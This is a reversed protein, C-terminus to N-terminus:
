DLYKLFEEPIRAKEIDPLLKIVSWALDLSENFTRREKQDLFDKEFSFGFALYKKDTESLSEEGSILVLKKTRLYKSYSSYLVDGVVKHDKRAIGKSGSHMLRSLSPVINIPPRIGEKELDRSLIIQGETIYGTLDPVPHTMDDNPMTLVPFQTLSGKRGSIIGSREMISALDTYLYPPYSMRGPLEGRSSSIERLAEAYNTLDYLILLVDMEMDFALYESLTLAIRPLIIREVIPDDAKNLFVISRNLIGTERITNLIYSYEDFPLGLGCFVIKLDGGLLKADKLVRILLDLHSLGSASFVPLKQGQILTMLLDIASIGTEIIGHPPTRASPLIIRGSIDREEGVLPPGGDIPNGVGDFIRGIAQESVVTKLLAGKFNIRIDETGVLELKQFTQIVAYEDSTELVQGEIIGKDTKIEVFEGIGPKLGGRTIIISGKIDTVCYYEVVKKV